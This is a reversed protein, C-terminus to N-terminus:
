LAAELVFGDVAAAVALFGAGVAFFDVVSATALFRVAFEVV